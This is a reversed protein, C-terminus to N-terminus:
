ARVAGVILDPSSSSVARGEVDGHVWVTKFGADDLLATLVDLSYYRIFFSATMVQGDPLELRRVIEDRGSDARYTTQEFLRAGDPLAGEFNACPQAAAWEWWTGQFILLGGPRVCRALSSFLPLQQNDDFSFLTNYWAFAATFANNRFPLAFFDGRAVPAPATSRLDSLSLPDLDIGIFTREPQLMTLAHLHRGHGCGIDLVPGPHPKLKQALYTVDARTVHERLFPRTTRLYLEGVLRQASGASVLIRM